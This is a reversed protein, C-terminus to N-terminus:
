RDVMDGPILADQLANMLGTDPLDYFIGTGTGADDLGRIFIYFVGGFHRDYRYGPVRSKLWRDLALAYLHYQLYYFSETMAAQLSTAAYDEYSYGLHNSKWDVLYYRDDFEFIMDIYGKMFGHVPAFTLRQWHHAPLQKIYAGARDQFVRRVLQPAIRKIPYHFEMENIRRDARIDSLRFRNKARDPPLRLDGLRALMRHVAASWELDFRHSTLKDTVLADVQVHNRSAFDVHEILDHFFLGAHAGKPFGFLTSRDSEDGDPQQEADAFADRDTADSEDAAGGGTTLGSFSAIRWETEVHGRFRREELAQQRIGSSAHRTQTSVPLQELRITGSSREEIRKLDAILQADSMAAMTRKMEHLTEESFQHRRPGHLLYATASLDTERICGWALYCRRKARTVAVYLLRINEALAERLALRAHAPEIEPGIALTIKGGNDPDHFVASKKDIRAGSWVFPCFVVDFQLGKSKHVTVIQVARSDSELRLKQADEGVGGGSRQHDFWALLSEPGSANELSAQHLLEGLHLLNTLCREGDKRALVRPKIKEQAMLRTFMPYFGDRQWIRRYTDFAAWRSEWEVGPAEVSACLDTATAGILDTALAARVRMPDGPMTVAELILALSDAERTDFVSGASHLVAPVGREGLAQKVSQAQRHTRTLVAVAQPAVHYATDSGNLLVVIEEAVAAVIRRTAEEQSIPRITEQAEGRTLFWLRFPAEEVPGSEARAAAAPEYGIRHDVFPLPQYGFLTNIADILPQTSRWNWTLTYQRSAAEKAELYSFLDAGRFSYIAQKPDGIMFLLSEAGGFIRTFIDYQLGDTDQFEDVLAARYSEQLTQILKAAAKSNLSRHVQLLLDDYFLLSQDRKKEDLRQRAEDILRVKLYRIYDRIQEEMQLHCAAADECLDFFPHRPTVANKKTAKELLTVTFRDFHHFLPTGGEWQDMQAALAALVKTRASTEPHTKDPRCKGYYRANLGESTLLALVEQKAAPWARRVQAAASRWDDIADLPPEVADPIVRIGPTRCRNFLAALDEPGNFEDLAFAAVEAPAAAIHRRWFDDAAEQVLPQDDQLLSAEFLYGTEFAFHILVRQCFGHITYIAARDFDTLADLVRQLILNRDGAEEVVADIIANPHGTKIDKKASVLRSRIRSKLEETAAKTYTVVLLQDISFGKEVILRLFLGAINYTKGTGAGAEILQIGELPAKLLDFSKM